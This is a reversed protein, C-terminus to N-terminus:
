NIWIENIYIIKPEEKTDLNIPLGKGLARKSVEHKIPKFKLSENIDFLHKLSIM